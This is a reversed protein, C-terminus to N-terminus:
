LNLKRKNVVEIYKGTDCANHAGIASPRKSTFNFEVDGGVGVGGGRQPPFARPM